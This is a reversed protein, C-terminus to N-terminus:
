SPWMGPSRLVLATVVVLLITPGAWVLLACGILGLSGGGVAGIAVAEDLRRRWSSRKPPTM